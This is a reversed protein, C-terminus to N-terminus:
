PPEDGPTALAGRVLADLSDETDFDRVREAGDPGLDAADLRALGLGKFVRWLSREGRELAAECARLAVPGLHACLYQDRGDVSVVRAAVGDPLPEALRAVVAADVLPVDCPLLVIARGPRARAATVVAQLPGEGPLLDPVAGPHGGGVIVVDALAERAAREVRALSTAGLVEVRAKDRGMRRSAGGALIAAVPPELRPPETM